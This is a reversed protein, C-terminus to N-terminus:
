ISSSLGTWEGSCLGGLPVWSGPFIFSSFQRKQLEVQPQWWLQCQIDVVKELPQGAACPFSTSTMGEWFGWCFFIFPPDGPPPLHKINSFQPLLQHLNWFYIVVPLQGPHYLGRELEGPLVALQMIYFVVVQSGWHGVTEVLLIEEQQWIGQEGAPVDSLFLQLFCHGICLGELEPCLLGVWRGLAFWVKQHPADQLQPCHHCQHCQRLHHLGVLLIRPPDALPLWKWSLGALGWQGGMSSVAASSAAGM